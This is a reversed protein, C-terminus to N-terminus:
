QVNKDREAIMADADRYCVEAFAEVTIENAEPTCVFGSAIMGAFWDRLSMGDSVDPLYVVPDWSHSFVPGGDNKMVKRRKFSETIVIMDELNQTLDKIYEKQAEDMLTRIYPSPLWSVEIAM